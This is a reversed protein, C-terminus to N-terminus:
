SQVTGNEMLGITLTVSGQEVFPRLSLDVPEETTTPVQTTTPVTVQTTPVTTPEPQRACACLGLVLVAALCFAFVRKM